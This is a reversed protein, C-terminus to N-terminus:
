VSIESILLLLFDDNKELNYYKHKNIFYNIFNIYKDAKNDIFGKVLKNTQM